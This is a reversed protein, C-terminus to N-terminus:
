ARRQRRIQFSPSSADKKTPATPFDSAAVVAMLGSKCFFEFFEFGSFLALCVSFLALCVIESFLALCVIELGRNRFLALCVIELGRNSRTQVSGLRPLIEQSYEAVIV